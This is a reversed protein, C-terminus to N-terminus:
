KSRSVSWQKFQARFRVDVREAALQEVRLTVINGRSTDGFALRSFRGCLQASLESCLPEPSRLTSYCIAGDHHASRQKAGGLPMSVADVGDSANLAALEDPQLPIHGGM